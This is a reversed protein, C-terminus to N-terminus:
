YDGLTYVYMYLVEGYKSANELEGFYGLGDYEFYFSYPIPGDEGSNVEISKGTLGELDSVSYGNGSVLLSSVSSAEWVYSGCLSFGTFSSCHRGEDEGFTFTDDITSRVAHIPADTYIQQKMVPEGEYLQAVLSGAANLSVNNTMLSAQKEFYQDLRYIYLALEGRTVKQNPSFYGPKTEPMINLEVMKRIFTYSESDTKVDKFQKGKTTYSAEDYNPIAYARSLVKAIQSRTLNNNPKFTNNDYGQMAGWERLALASKFNAHSVSFDKYSQPTFYEPYQELVEPFKDIYPQVNVAGAVIKAAQVRTVNNNPRFTGNSYGSIINRESMYDVARGLESSMNVDKFSKASSEGAFLLFCAFAAVLFKSFKM